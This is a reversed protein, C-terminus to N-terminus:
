ARVNALEFVRDIQTRQVVIVGDSDAIVADGQHVEVDGSTVVTGVSSVRMRGKHDIPRM